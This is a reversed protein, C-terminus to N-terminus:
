VGAEQPVLQGRDDFAYTRLEGAAGCRVEIWVDGLGPVGVCEDPSGGTESVYRASGALIVDTETVSSARGMWLGMAAAVLCLVSTVVVVQRM